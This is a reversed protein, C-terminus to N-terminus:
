PNQPFSLHSQQPLQTFYHACLTHLHSLLHSISPFLSLFFSFSFLFPFFSSSFSFVGFVGFLCSFFFPHFVLFRTLSVICSSHYPIFLTSPIKDSSLFFTRQAGVRRPMSSMSYQIRIWLSPSPRCCGTDKEWEIPLYFLVATHLLEDIWDM